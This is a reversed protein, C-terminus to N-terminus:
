IGGLTEVQVRAQLYYEILYQIHPPPRATRGLSSSTIYLVKASVGDYLRADYAGRFRVLFIAVVVAAAGHITQAFNM